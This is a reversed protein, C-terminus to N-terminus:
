QTVLLSGVPIAYISDESWAKGGFNFITGSPNGNTTMAGANYYYTKPNSSSNKIVTGGVVLGYISSSTWIGSILKGSVVDPSSGGGPTDSFCSRLFISQGPTPLINGTILFSASIAYTSNAPLTITTGTHTFNAAGITLNVGSSSLDPIIVPAILPSQTWQANGNADSSLVKGVGQSGDSLNFGSGPSSATIAFKTQPSMNNVGVNGNDLVTVMELPTSASNSIKLAKTAASSGKSLIDLTAKPQDLNIGVQTFALSSLFLFVTSSIKRKM